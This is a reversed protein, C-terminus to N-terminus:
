EGIGTDDILAEEPRSEVGIAVRAVADTFTNIGITLLPSSYSLFRSRGSM